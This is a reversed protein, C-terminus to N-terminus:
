TSSRAPLNHNILVFIPSSEKIKRGKDLLLAVLSYIESDFLVMSTLCFIQAKKDTHNEALTARLKDCFNLIEVPV